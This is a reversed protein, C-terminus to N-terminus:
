VGTMLSWILTLPGTLVFLTEVLFELRIGPNMFGKGHLMVVGGLAAPCIMLAIGLPSVLGASISLLMLIGMGILFHVLLRMARKEGLLVPITGQGVIRDGQIDLIDFFATRVFVFFSSWMFILVTDLGLEGFVALAPLITTVVGWAMAILVSKSGPMDRLRRYRGIRRWNPLIKVNYSLGTISMVTLIVFPLPGLTYATILGLGGGNVALLGLWLRYKRYFSARDPDNYRDAKTGILNNLIHMSQVYLVAILVHPFHHEIGLLRTCAYCLCGAGLSVYINTLLLSRKLNFLARRWARGKKLPLAELTRYVKKIIWNPTSAGATLGITRASALAGPDLDNESEIHFTPKGTEKAVEALRQTNGSDYGGVVVVADVANALRKVEEQRKATSDCITDFIQYHPKERRAWTKIQDLLLTSQTTQAVIIARDFHPLAAIEELSNVVHGNGGAYGLLGVVEPHDRDGIIISASGKRTHKRIITQVKIVRPCTADIVTFGAAKLRDKIRPPVGHARILVTGKGQDPVADLVGIGKEELLARVQPNHILPGYTHIPEPHAGPADLVLEVARRVGM